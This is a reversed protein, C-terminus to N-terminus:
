GMKESGLGLSCFNYAILTPNIANLSLFVVHFLLISRLLFNRRKAKRICSCSVMGTPHTGDAAIARPPHHRGPPINYGPHHRGLPTHTGLPHTQGPPTQRLPYRGSVGEGRQVSHSVSLCLFMVKGCTRQPRYFNTLCSLFYQWNLRTM